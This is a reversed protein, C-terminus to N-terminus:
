NLIDLFTNKQIEESKTTEILPHLLLLEKKVPLIIKFNKQFIQKESEERRKSLRELFM